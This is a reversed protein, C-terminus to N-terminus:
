VNRCVLLSSSMHCVNHAREVAVMYIFVHRPFFSFVIGWVFTGILGLAIGWARLNARRADDCVQDSRACFEDVRQPVTITYYLALPTGIIWLLYLFVFYCQAWLMRAAKATQAFSITGLLFAVQGNVDTQKCLACVCGFSSEFGPCLTM